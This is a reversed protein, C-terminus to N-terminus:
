NSPEKEDPTTDRAKNSEIKAALADAQKQAVQMEIRNREVRLVLKALERGDDLEENIILCLLTLVAFHLRKKQTSAYM